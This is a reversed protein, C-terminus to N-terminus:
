KQFPNSFKGSLTTKKWGLDCFCPHKPDVFSACRIETDEPTYAYAVISMRSDPNDEICKPIPETKPVSLIKAEFIYLLGLLNETKTMMDKLLEPVEEHDTDNGLVIPTLTDVGVALIVPSLVAQMTMIAKAQEMASDAIEKFNQM